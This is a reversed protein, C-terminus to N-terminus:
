CSILHGFSYRVRKTLNSEDKGCAQYIGGHEREVAPGHVHRWPGQRIHIVIIVKIILKPTIVSLKPVM